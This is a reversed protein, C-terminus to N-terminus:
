NTKMMSEVEPIRKILEHRLQCMKTVLAAETYEGQKHADILTCFVAYWVTLVEVLKPDPTNM